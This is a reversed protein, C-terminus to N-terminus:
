MVRYSSTMDNNRGGLRRRDRTVVHCRGGFGDNECLRVSAGGMVRISSIRDNWAARIDRDAQGPRRCFHRGRYNFDECFCVRARENGRGNGRRARRDPAIHAGNPGVGM